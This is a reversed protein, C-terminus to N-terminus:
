RFMEGRDRNAARWTATKIKLWNRTPGPRYEFPSNHTQCYRRTLGVSRRLENLAKIKQKNILAWEGKRRHSVPFKM